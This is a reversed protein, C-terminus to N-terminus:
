KWQIIETKITEINDIIPVLTPHQEIIAKLGETKIAIDLANLEPLLRRKILDKIMNRQKAAENVFGNELTTRYSSTATKFDVYTVDAMWFFQYVNPCLNYACLLRNSSTEDACPILSTKICVGGTKARIVLKNGLSEIIKDIDEYVNYHNAQIFDKLKQKLSEGHLGIPTSDEGAMTRIVKAACELNEKYRDKPRCYYGLMDESLHGMFRKIYSLPVGRDALGTCVRVRYQRIEPIYFLAEQYENKYEKVGRLFTCRRPIIGPWEQSCEERLYKFIFREYEDNFKTSPAPYKRLDELQSQSSKRRLYTLYLFDSTKARPHSLRLRSLTEYAEKCLDTCYMDFEYMPGFGRSPKGASYHIFHASVKTNELVISKLNNIRLDMLDGLRLGLQSGIILICCFTRELYDKSEDRMIETAKGIILAYLRLPIDPLKNSELVKEAVHSYHLSKNHITELNVPLEFKYVDVLFSWVEYASCLYYHSTGPKLEKREAFTLIDQTTLLYINGHNLPKGVRNIIDNLIRIRHKSTSPSKKELIGYIVFFKAYLQLEPPVLRGFDLMLASRNKHKYYPRFDWVKDYFSIRADKDPAFDFVTELVARYVMSTEENLMLPYQEWPIDKIYKSILEIPLM